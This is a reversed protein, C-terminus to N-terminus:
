GLVVKLLMGTPSPHPHSTLSSDALRVAHTLFSAPLPVSVGAAMDKSPLSSLYAALCSALWASGVQLCTKGKEWQFLSFNQLGERRGERGVGEWFAPMSSIATQSLPPLPLDGEGLGLSLFAM